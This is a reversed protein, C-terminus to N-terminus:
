AIDVPTFDVESLAGVDIGQLIALYESGSSIITDNANDGTGQTITLDTYQLGDDLGLVDTGDTFDTITDADALTSGGDGSRLVITDAGTGTSITDAGAGGDLTDAGKDGGLTDNGDGGYLFDDGFEGDNDGHGERLNGHVAYLASSWSSEGGIDGYIIDDGGLGRLIDSGSGGFISNNSGDGTLQDDNGSGVMNEFNSTVGTNITYTQASGAGWYGFAIWDDGDGGNLAADQITASSTSVFVIDNNAGMNINNAKNGLVIQDDGSGLDATVVGSTGGTAVVFDAIESGTISLAASNSIGYSSLGSTSLNTINSSSESNQDFLYVASNNSDFFIGDYRSYGAEIDGLWSRTSGDGLILQYTNSGIVLSEIAKFSIVDNSSSTLTYYESSTNYSKSVFDAM